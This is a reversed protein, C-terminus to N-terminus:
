LLGYCSTEFEQEDRGLAQIVEVPLGVNGLHTDAHNDDVFGVADGGPAMIKARMIAANDSQQGRERIVSGDQGQSSCGVFADFLINQLLYSFYGPDYTTGHLSRVQIQM